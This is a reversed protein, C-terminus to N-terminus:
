TLGWVPCDTLLRSTTHFKCFELAVWFINQLHVGDEATSIKERGIFSGIFSMGHM